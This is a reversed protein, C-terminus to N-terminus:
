DGASRSEDSGLPGWHARLYAEAEDRALRQPLLGCQDCETRWTKGDRVLLGLRGTDKRNVVWFGPASKYTGPWDLGDIAPAQHAVEPLDSASM